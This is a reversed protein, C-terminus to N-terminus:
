WFSVPPEERPLRPAGRVDDPGGRPGQNAFGVGDIRTVVQDTVAKLSRLIEVNVISEAEWSADDGFELNINEKFQEPPSLSALSAGYWLRRQEIMDAINMTHAKLEGTAKGLIKLDHVQTLELCLHEHRKSAYRLQRHLQVNEVRLGKHSNKTYVEPLLHGPRTRISLNGILEEVAEDPVNTETAIGTVVMRADWARKPYHWYVGGIAQPPKKVVFEGPTLPNVEIHVERHENDDCIFILTALGNGSPTECFLRQGHDNTLDIIHQIDTTSATLMNTFGTCLDGHGALETEWDQKTAADKRLAKPVNDLIIMGFEVQMKLEGSFSQAAELIKLAPEHFELGEIVAGPVDRQAQVQHPLAIASTSHSTKPVPSAWSPLDVNAWTPWPSTITQDHKLPDSTSAYPRSGVKAWASWIKLSAMPSDVRPDRSHESLQPPVPSSTPPRASRNIRRKASGYSESWSPTSPFSNGTEGVHSAGAFPKRQNM